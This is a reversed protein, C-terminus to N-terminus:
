KKKGGCNMLIPGTVARKQREIQLLGKVDSKVEGLEAMVVGLEHDVDDIRHGLKEEVEKIQTGLIYTNGLLGLSALAAPYM